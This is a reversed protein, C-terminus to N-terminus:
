LVDTTLFYGFNTPLGDANREETCEQRWEAKLGENKAWQLFDLWEAHFAEDDLEVRPCSVSNFGLLNDIVEDRGPGVYIAPVTNEVVIRHVVEAKMKAFFETVRARSQEDNAAPLNVQSDAIHAVTSNIAFAAAQNRLIDGLTSTM